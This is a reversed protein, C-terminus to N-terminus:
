VVKERDFILFILFVTWEPNGDRHRFVHTNGMQQFSVPRRPPKTPNHHFSISFEGDRFHWEGHFANGAYSVVNQGSRTTGLEMKVPDQNTHVYLCKYAVFEVELVFVGPEPELVPEGM